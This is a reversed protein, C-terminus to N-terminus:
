HLHGKLYCVDCGWVGSFPEIIDDIAPVGEQMYLIFSVQEYLIVERRWDEWEGKETAIRTSQM